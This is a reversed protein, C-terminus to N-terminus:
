VGFSWSAGLLHRDSGTSSVPESNYIRYMGLQGSPLVSAVDTETHWMNGTGPNIPKGCSPAEPASGKPCSPRNNKPPDNQDPQATVLVCQRADEFFRQGTPCTQLYIRKWADFTSGLPYTVTVICWNAKGIGDAFNEFPWTTINTVSGPIVADEAAQIFNQWAICAAAGTSYISRDPSDVQTFFTNGISGFAVPAQLLVIFAILLGVIKASPPAFFIYPFVDAQETKNRM